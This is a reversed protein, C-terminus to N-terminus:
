SPTDGARFLAFASTYGHVHTGAGVPGIEGNCFFGGLPMEGLVSRFLDSDHNARGYLFEGRGLCSFLLAGAGQPLRRDAHQRLLTQLDEASTRRDRLHFQVVMGEHLLAGVALAGNGYDVGILNRILFGGAETDALLPDMEIGIFLASEALKRDYEPLTPLLTQLYAVPSGADVELLLNHTCSCVTLPRGIPRCGQAVITDVAVNGALGLVVVGERHLGHNAVLVNELAQGGGSALGGVKVAQPFAYDLGAVIRDIPTSFPDALLVLARPDPLDLGLWDRWADPSADEDPLRAPDGYGVACGVEPLSAAALAIAPAQEIERGGGIVGMATCGVLVRPSLQAHIRGAIRDCIGRFHPALFCFVVDAKGPGLDACLRDITADFGDLAADGQYLASAWNM